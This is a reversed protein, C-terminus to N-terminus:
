REQVEMMWGGVDVEGRVRANFVDERCVPGSCLFGMCGITTCFFPDSLAWFATWSVATRKEDAM